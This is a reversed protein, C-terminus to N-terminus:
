YFIYNSIKIFFLLLQKYAFQLHTAYAKNQIETLTCIAIVALRHGEGVKGIFHETM